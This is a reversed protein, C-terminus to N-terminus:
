FFQLIKRLPKLWLTYFRPKLGNMVWAKRDEANANLRGALSANSLGGRRMYVTTEPLYCLSIKHKHIFRLMLEYDAATKLAMTYTGLKQYLERKVFFTPHPPMWGYLFAGETYGGSKWRRVVKNKNAADVYVLDAYVADCAGSLMRKAYNSITNAAPYFDDAHLIGIYDGTALAIGKNLADYLGQDKESILRSINNRYKELRKMTADSSAGDIVIYELDPYDQSLVSQVCDEITAEANFTVTIVTIRM